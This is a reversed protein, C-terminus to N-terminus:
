RDRANWEVHVTRLASVIRSPQRDDLSEGAALHLDPIRAVLAELAVKAEMRVLPAGLCFHTWRGLGFHEGLDARTPDFTDPDAFVDEDRMAASFSVIVVADKPIPVGALVTDKTVHRRMGRVPNEFRLTEEVVAPILSPETRIREWRQLDDLLLFLTTAILSASTEFGASLVNVVLRVAEWTTLSPSGDDSVATVLRSTLDGTPAARRDDIFQRIWADFELVRDFVERRRDDPLPPSGADTDEVDAIWRKCLAVKQEPVGLIGCIMRITLPQTFNRFLEVEGARIFGDILEDVIARAQPEYSAVARLTFAEQAFKRLRTHEPPDANVLPQSFPHGDPLAENLGPMPQFEIVKCSSYTETDRLVTLCDEHRTVWWEDTDPVYFIPATRRAEALWPYPNLLHEANLPDFPCGEAVPPGSVEAQNM